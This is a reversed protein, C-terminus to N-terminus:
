WWFFYLVARQTRIACSISAMVHLKQISNLRSTELFALLASPFALLASLFVLLASLFVLLASLFVLLASLFVLLASVFRDVDKLVSHSDSSRDHRYELLISLHIYLIRASCVM